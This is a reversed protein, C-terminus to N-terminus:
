QETLKQNDESMIAKANGSIKTFEEEAFGGMIFFNWVMKKHLKLSKALLILITDFFLIDIALGLLATYAFKHSRDDSKKKKKKNFFFFFILKYTSSKMELSIGVSM